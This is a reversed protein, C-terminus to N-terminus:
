GPDSTSNPREDTSILISRVRDYYKDQLSTKECESCGGKANADTLEQLYMKRLSLLEQNNTTFENSFFQLVTLRHEDMRRIVLKDGVREMEVGLKRIIGTDKAINPPDVYPPDNSIGLEDKITDSPPATTRSDIYNCVAIVPYLTLMFTVVTEPLSLGALLFLTVSCAAVLYPTVCVKCMLLKRFFPPWNDRSFEEWDDRTYLTNKTFLSTLTALLPTDFLASLLYLVTSLAAFTGLLINTLDM